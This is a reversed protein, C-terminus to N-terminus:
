GAQDSYPVTQSFILRSIRAVRSRTAMVDSKYQFIEPVNGRRQLYLYFRDALLVAQEYRAESCLLLVNSYGLAGGVIRSALSM